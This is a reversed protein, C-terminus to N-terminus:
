RSKVIEVNPQDAGETTRIFQLLVCVVIFSEVVVIGIKPSNGSRLGFSEQPLESVEEM